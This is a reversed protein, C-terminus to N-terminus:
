QITSDTFINSNQMVKIVPHSPDSSLCCIQGKKIKRRKPLHHANRKREQYHPVRIVVENKKGNFVFTQKKRNKQNKQWTEVSLRAKGKGINDMYLFYYPFKHSFKSQFLIVFLVKWNWPSLGYPAIEINRLVFPPELFINKYSKKFGFM